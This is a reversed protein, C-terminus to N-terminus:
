QMKAVGVSRLTLWCKFVGATFDLSFDPHQCKGSTVSGGFGPGKDRGGVCCWTGPSGVQLLPANISLENVAWCGFSLEGGRLACICIFDCVCIIFATPSGSLLEKRWHHLSQTRCGNAKSSPCFSGKCPPRPSSVTSNGEKKPM